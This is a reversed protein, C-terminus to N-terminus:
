ALKMILKGQEKGKEIGILLDPNPLGDVWAEDVKNQKATFTFVGANMIVPVDVDPTQIAIGMTPRKGTGGNTFLTKFPSPQVAVNPVANIGVSPAEAKTEEATFPIINAM